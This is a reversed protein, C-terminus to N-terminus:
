QPPCLFYPDEADGGEAVWGSRNDGARINWWSWDDSCLPGALVQFSTGVPLQSLVDGARGPGSRLKVPTSRTCVFGASGVKLRQLPASACATLPQQAAVLRNYEDEALWAVARVGVPLDLPQRDWTGVAILDHDVVLAQGDPSWVPAFHSGLHTEEVVASNEIRAAWLGEQQEDVNEVIISLYQGDPSWFPGSFWGGHGLMQFFSTQFSTRNELDLVLGGAGQSGTAMMALYREDPSLVPGDARFDPGTVGYESLDHVTVQDKDYVRLKKSGNLDGFYYFMSCDATKAIWTWVSAQEDLVRLAGDSLRMLAPRSPCGEGCEEPSVVSVSLLDPAGPCWSGLESIPSTKTLRSIQSSEIHQLYIDGGANVLLKHGDSSFSSYDFSLPLSTNTERDWAYYQQGILFQKDYIGVAVVLRLVPQPPVATPTPPALIPTPPVPSPLGVEPRSQSTPPQTAPAQTAQALAATASPLASLKAGLSCAGLVLGFLVSAVLLKHPNM